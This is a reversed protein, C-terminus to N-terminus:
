LECLWRCLASLQDTNTLNAANSLIGMELQSWIELAMKSEIAAGVFFTAPSFGRMSFADRIRSLASNATKWHEDAGAPDIGGKLEGLVIYSAPNGFITRSFGSWKCDLLVFDINTNVIPNLRNYIATRDGKNNTWSLGNLRLEVDADDLTGQIWRNSDSHLWQYPIGALKLTSIITRTFKRQGLEGGLNRMSGGLSDGRTLLFRFVLEEVFASGAPELFNKILGRIAEIKDEPEM